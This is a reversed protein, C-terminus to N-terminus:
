QLAVWLMLSATVSKFMYEGLHLFTSQSYLTKGLFVFKSLTGSWPKFGALVNVM